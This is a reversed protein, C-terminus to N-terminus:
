TWDIAYISCDSPYDSDNMGLSVNKLGEGPYFGHAEYHYNQGPIINNTEFITETGDSNIVKIGFYSSPLNYNYFVLAGYEGIFEESGRGDWQQQWTGNPVDRTYVVKWMKDTDNCLWLKEVTYGTATQQPFALRGEAKGFQVYHQYLVDADTTGLAAVVDPNTQAYFEADFNTEDATAQSAALRGEAKGFVIYHQYLVDADTTGVAAAVDPYTQAYFEADFVTGDAMTQPAACVTISSAMALIGLLLLSIFRKKM